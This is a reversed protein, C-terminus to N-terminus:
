HDNRMQWRFPYSSSAYIKGAGGGKHALALTVVGGSIDGSVATFGIPVTVGTYRDGSSDTYQAPDGEGGGSPTSTGTSAFRVISGSVVVCLEWFDSRSGNRDILYAAWAEIKDGAVAALTLTPGGSILTWAADASAVLDGSTVYARSITAASGGGGAAAWKVGAASAADATLVQGDSGVAVRTVTASATAAYLDGKTTLTSRAQAGTIRSDDGAAVTGTTTGVSLVAAGGLGLNTRATGANALDALNQAKQAAGTIRSDDGAAVTGTTTGVNLLAAGALGLNGRATSASSLDSLNSAKQAAGTIRSDDGAAVTGTTTGVALLAAGGLGLNTRATSASALDSLNSAKQAAGTIRSDAGDAATGSTTGIVLSSTGAGLATRAIAATSAVLVQKGITSADGILASTTAFTTPKGTIDAWATSGGGGGGGSGTYGNATM